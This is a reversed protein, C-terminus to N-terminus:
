AKNKNYNYILYQCFKNLMIVLLSTFTYINFNSEKINFYYIKIDIISLTNM